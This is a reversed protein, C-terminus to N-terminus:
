GTKGVNFRLLFTGMTQLSLFCYTLVLSYDNAKIPCYSKLGLIFTNLLSINDLCPRYDFM